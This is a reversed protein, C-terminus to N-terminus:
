KGNMILQRISFIHVSLAIPVLFGPILIYPFTGIIASSPDNFFIRLPSPSSIAVVFVTVLLIFIGTLNWLIAAFQQRFRKFFFVNGAILATVGVVMDHNFGLFTMQFPVLGILFLIYFNTEVFIRFFQFLILSKEPLLKLMLRFLRSRLLLLSLLLPPAFAIVIKPPITEFDNFFGIFSLFSILLIWAILGITTMIVINKRQGDLIKLKSLSYKLAFFICVLVYVVAALVIIKSLLLATQENQM